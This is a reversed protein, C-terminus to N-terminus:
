SETQNKKPHFSTILKLLPIVVDNSTFNRTTELAQIIPFTHEDWKAKGQSLGELAQDKTLGHNMFKKVTQALLLNGKVYSSLEPDKLIMETIQSANKNLSLSSELPGRGIIIVDCHPLESLPEKVDDFILLAKKHSLIVKIHELWSEKYFPVNLIKVLRQYDSIPDEFSIYTIIEYHHAYTYAFHKAFTTKGSNPKGLLFLPTQKKQFWRHCYDLEHGRGLCIEVPSVNGKKRSDEQEGKLHLEIDVLRIKCDHAKQGVESILSPVAEFKEVLKLAIEDEDWIQATKQLLELAEENKFPSVKQLIIGEQNWHPNRSTVLIHGRFPHNLQHFHKSLDTWDKAQDFVILFGPTIWDIEQNFSEFNSCDIWYVRSYQKAHRAYEVAIQTKGVCSLVEPDQTLVVFHTQRFLADLDIERRKVFLPNEYPTEPSYSSTSCPYLPPTATHPPVEPLLLAKGQSLIKISKEMKEVYTDYELGLTSAFTTLTSIFYKEPTDVELRSGSTVIDLASEEWTGRYLLQFVSYQRAGSDTEIRDALLDVDRGIMTPILDTTFRTDKEKLKPTCIVIVFDAKKLKTSQRIRPVNPKFTIPAFEVQVNLRHLDKWVHERVWEKTSPQEDSMIYCSLPKGSYAGKMEEILLEYAQRMKIEDPLSSSSSSSVRPLLHPEQTQFTLAGSLSSSSFDSLPQTQHFLMRAKNKLVMIPKTAAERQLGKLVAFLEFIKLYCYSSAEVGFIPEILPTPSSDLSFGKFYIPITTGSPREQAMRIEQVSGKPDKERKICKHKLEPTCIILTFDEHYSGSQFLNLDMGPQLHTSSCIPNTGIAKLDPVLSEKVWKQADPDTVSFCIFCSPIKPSSHKVKDIEETFVHRLATVNSRLPECNLDSLFHLDLRLLFNCFTEPHSEKRALAEAKQVLKQCTEPYAPHFSEAICLYYHIALLINGQAEFICAALFHSRENHELNAELASFSWESKQYLPILNRIKQQDTSSPIFSDVQAKALFAFFEGRVVRIKHDIDSTNAKQYQRHAKAKEYCSIEESFSSAITDLVISEKKLTEEREQAFERGREMWIIDDGGEGRLKPFLHLNWEGSKGKHPVVQLQHPSVDLVLQVMDEETLLGHIGGKIQEARIEKSKGSQDQIFAHLQKKESILLQITKQNFTWFGLSTFQVLPKQSHSKTSTIYPISV